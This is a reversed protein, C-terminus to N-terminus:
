GTDSAAHMQDGGTGGHHNDSAAPTTGQERSGQISKRATAKNFRVINSRIARALLRLGQKGLHLADQDLPRGTAKDHRGLESRLVGSRDCYQSIDNDLVYVNKHSHSMEQMINNLEKVRYNISSLKTPLLLSLYIKCRPYVEMIRKCKYYLEDGLRQSSKRSRHKIDNVGTHLVINRYPGIDEPEPIEGIHFAEIRKGPMWKGFTGQGTGFNLLRTNSDGVICTSNLYYKSINRFTFSFREECEEESPEISHRWFDQAKRSAILVSGNTLTLDRSSGDNSTFKMVRSAGISVTVIESEPDITPEDDRHASICDSGDKYRNILCSNFVASSDSLHPRVHELLKALPEPLDKGTSDHEGGTYRYKYEGFYLTDRTHTSGEPSLKGRNPELFDRLVGQIEESVGDDVHRVYPEPPTTATHTRPTAARTNPLMPSRPPSARNTQAPAAALQQQSQLSAITDIMKQSCAEMNSTHDHLRTEFAKLYESVISSSDTTTVSPESLKMKGLHAPIENIVPDISGVLNIFALVSDALFKKSVKTKGSGCMDGSTVDAIDSKSLLSCMTGKVENSKNCLATFLTKLQCGAAVIDASFEIDETSVNVTGVDLQEEKNKMPTLAM